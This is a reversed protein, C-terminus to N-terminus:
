QKCVVENFIYWPYKIILGQVYTCKKRVNYVHNYLSNLYSCLSARTVGYIVTLIVSGIAGVPIGLLTCIIIGPISYWPNNLYNINSQLQSLWSNSALYSLYNWIVTAKIVIKTTNGGQIALDTDDTPIITGNDTIELYGDEVDQNIAELWENLSEDNDEGILDIIEDEAEDDIEFCGDEVDILDEVENMTSNSISQIEEAAFVGHCSISVIFLSSSLIILIKKIKVLM